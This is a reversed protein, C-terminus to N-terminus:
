YYYPISTTIYSSGGAARTAIANSVTNVATSSTSTTIDTGTAMAAANITSTAAATATATATVTATATATATAANIYAEQLLIIHPPSLLSALYGKFYDLKLHATLSQCNWSIVTLATM